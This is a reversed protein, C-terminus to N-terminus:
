ICFDIEKNSICDRITIVYGMSHPSVIFDMGGGSPGTYGPKPLSKLWATLEDHESKCLYSLIYSELSNANRQQKLKFLWMDLESLTIRESGIQVEEPKGKEKPLLEINM